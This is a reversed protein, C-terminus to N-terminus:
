PSQIEAAHQMTSGVERIRIWAWFGAVVPALKLLVLIALLPIISM